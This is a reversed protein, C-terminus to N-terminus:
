YENLNLTYFSGQINALESTFVSIGFNDAIACSAVLYRHYRDDGSTGKDVVFTTTRRTGISTVPAVAANTLLTLSNGAGILSPDAANIRAQCPQAMATSAPTHTTNFYGPTGGSSKTLYVALELNERADNSLNVVVQQKVASEQSTGVVNMLPIAAVTMASVILVAAVLAFGDDQKQLKLWKEM